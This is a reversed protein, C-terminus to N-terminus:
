SLLGQLKGDLYVRPISPREWPPVRHKQFMRKLRHRDNSQQTDSGFRLSLSQKKDRVELKRFIETRKIRLGYEEIEISSELGFSFDGSRELLKERSVLFLRQDYIRISYDPMAIEPVSDARAHLQRMLEQMRANPITPLGADSIWYRVLNKRRGSSLLMLQVVDLTVVGRSETSKLQLFDLAAVEDLLVQLESQLLSATALSAQCHPWRAKLLPMVRNRLYNRDFKSARNSPDDVWDLKYQRAYAELQSRSSDLLPRLLLAGGDLVRQRAIGRLGASGSGRLANLLFTEAQDDAHHATLICDGAHTHQAFLAYRKHRAVAEINREVEGLKLQDVRIELGLDEAQQICFQEMDSAVDLLGHNFHWPVIEFDRPDAVLLHLLVTSDLGGSFAVFVRQADDPILELSSQM